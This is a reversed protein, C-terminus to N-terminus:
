VYHNNSWFSSTKTEHKTLGSSNWKKVRRSPAISGMDMESRKVRQMHPKVNGNPPTAPIVAVFYALSFSHRKCFSPYHFTM